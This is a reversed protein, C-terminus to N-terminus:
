HGPITVAGSLSSSSRNLSLNRETTYPQPMSMVPPGPHQQPLSPVHSPIISTMTPPRTMSLSPHSAVIPQPQSQPQSQPQTNVRTQALRSSDFNVPGGVAEEENVSEKEDDKALVGKGGVTFRDDMYHVFQTWRSRPDDRPLALFHDKTEQDARKWYLKARGVTSKVYRCPTFVTEFASRQRMRLDAKIIAAMADFGKTIEHVSFDTPWRRGTTAGSVNNQAASSPGARNAVTNSGPSATSRMVPSKWTQVATPNAIAPIPNPTVRAQKSSPSPTYPDVQRKLQYAVPPPQLALEHELSPCDTLGDLLSPRLRYLLRQDQEVSRVTTIKHQEWLGTETNYVDIYSTSQLGLETVLEPFDQLQFLPFTSVEHAIRLPDCGNRYWIVLTLSRKLSEELRARKELLDHLEQGDGAVPMSSSEPPVSQEKPLPRHGTHVRRAHVKCVPRQEGADAAAKALNQCCHGCLLARCSQHGRSREGARTRCDPNACHIGAPSDAANADPSLVALSPDM